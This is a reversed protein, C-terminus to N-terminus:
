DAGPSAAPQSAVERVARKVAETSSLRPSWGLRQLKAISYQFRPVDGVWGRNGGTYRIRAGPSVVRVVEEAIERVTTATDPPAINFYNLREGARGWIHMMGDILESVHLYPKEQTGDGLVELEGPTRRLKRVFDYIAGHTAPSGVVNPFRFIWVRELFRELASSIAAESALKMAGYNSIPFWPGGDETLLGQQMGYIASTSSFCFRRIGVSQAVRLTRHTTLFTSRLDIEPDAGGAQIDSNAALHWIVEIPHRAHEERVFAEFTDFDNVDLEQFKFTTQAMAKALHARRGLVLNDVGVVHRGLSLLRDVLHSGIFGAAGTVLCGGSM